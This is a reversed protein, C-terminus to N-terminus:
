KRATAKASQKRPRGSKPPSVPEATLRDMYYEIRPPNATDIFLACPEVDLAAAIKDVNDLSINQKGREVMSIYTRHLGCKLAFAEQSLGM